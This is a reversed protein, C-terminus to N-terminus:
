GNVFAANPNANPNPNTNNAYYVTPSQDVAQPPTFSKNQLSFTNIITPSVLTESILQAGASSAGIILPNYNGRQQPTSLAYTVGFATGGVALSNVIPGVYDAVTKGYGPPPANSM